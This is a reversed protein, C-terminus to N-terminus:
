MSRRALDVILVLPVFTSAANEPVYTYRRSTPLHLAVLALLFITTSEDNGSFILGLFTEAGEKGM